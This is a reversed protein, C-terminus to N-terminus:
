ITTHYQDLAKKAALQESEKKTRGHGVGVIRNNIIVHAVFERDHAPGKECVIQYNIATQKNKQILEQLQSKYDLANSFTGKEIKPYIFRKLFVNVGEFDQDLYLAGIFAEFVDALLAPRQRGGTREEGRGLLVFKDFNLSLAFQVLAPECVITARIKTLEGEPKNPYTRYLYQSIGLELVADGLFELRENDQKKRNKNENVYSSHTFAQILLRQNKFKIGLQKELAKFNMVDLVEM